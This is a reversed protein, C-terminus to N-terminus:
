AYATVGTAFKFEILNMTGADKVIPSDSKAITYGTLGYLPNTNSKNEFRLADLCITYDSLANGGYNTADEVSSYIKLTRVSKWNFNQTKSTSTSTDKLKLTLVSYRNNLDLNTLRFHYKASDSGNQNVFELMINISAPTTSPTANKNILSFAVRLEDNESNEDLNMTIPVSVYNLTFTPHNPDPTLDGSFRSMDGALFLVDSQFRPVENRSIRSSDKFFTNEANSIFAKDTKIINNTADTIVSYYPVDSFNYNTPSAYELYTWKENQTFNVPIYSDQGNAYTNTGSPYLGFETIGYRNTITSPIEAVMVIQPVYGFISITQDFLTDPDTGGTSDLVTITTSSANLITFYGNANTSVPPDMNTFNDAGTVYITSGFGFQNGSPITFIFVNQGDVTTAQVTNAVLTLSDLVINRSTIPFRDMEFDLETKLAYNGLTTSPTAGCGIAIHSAFSTTQGILYKSIIDRGTLTIM